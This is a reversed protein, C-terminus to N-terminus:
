AETGPIGDPCQDAGPINGAGAARECCPLRGPSGFVPIRLCGPASGPRRSCDAYSVGAEVVTRIVPLLRDLSLRVTNLVVDVDDLARALEDEDALDLCTSTAKDGCIESAAAAREQFLDATIVRRFIKDEGIFRAASLGVTGCGLLLLTDDPM